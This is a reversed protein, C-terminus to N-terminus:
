VEWMSITRNAFPRQFLDCSNIDSGSIYCEPVFSNADVIIRIKNDNLKSTVKYQIRSKFRFHIVIRYMPIIAQVAKNVHRLVMEFRQEVNMDKEGPDKAIIENFLDPFEIASSTDIIDMKDCYKKAFYMDGKGLTAVWQVDRQLNRAIDDTVLMHPVIDVSKLYRLMIDVCEEFRSKYEYSRPEYDDWYPFLLLAKTDFGKM